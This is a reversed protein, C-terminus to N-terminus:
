AERQWRLRGAHGSGRRGLLRAAPAVERAAVAEAPATATTRCERHQALSTSRARRSARRECRRRADDCRDREALSASARATLARTLGLRRVVASAVLTTVNAGCEREGKRACSTCYPPHARARRYAGTRREALGGLCAITITKRASPSQCSNRLHCWRQTLAVAGPAIRVGPGIVEFTAASVAGHLILFTTKVARVDNKDQTTKM